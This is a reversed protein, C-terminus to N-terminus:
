ENVGKTLNLGLSNESIFEQADDENVIPKAVWEKALELLFDDRVEYMKGGKTRYLLAGNWFYETNNYVFAAYDLGLLKREAVADGGELKFILDKIKKSTSENLEIDNGSFRFIVRNNKEDANNIDDSRGLLMGLCLM